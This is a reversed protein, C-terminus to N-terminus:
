YNGFIVVTLLVGSVLVLAAIIMLLEKLMFREMSSDDMINAGQLRSDAKQERRRIVAGLHVGTRMYTAMNDIEPAVADRGGSRPPWNAAMWLRVEAAM